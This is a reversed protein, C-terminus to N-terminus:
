SGHATQETKQLVYWCRDSTTVFDVAAYGDSFARKMTDALRQQWDRAKPLNVQKLTSIVYPIEVRCRPAAGPAATQFAGDADESLLFPAELEDTHHQNGGAAAMVRASELNWTIELRDSHMGSNLSDNMPGYFNEHYVHAAGGLRRLNLNANRRQLPDFTWGIVTCGNSLAWDRQMFKLRVGVGRGQYAPHVGMIDSWIRGGARPLAAAFGIVADGDFAGLVVGGVHNFVRLTHVALVDADAMGWVDKQLTVAQEFEEPLTMPRFTIATRMAETHM